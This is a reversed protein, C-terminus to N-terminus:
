TFDPMWMGDAERTLAKAPTTRGMAPIRGRLKIRIRMLRRRPSRIIAQGLGSTLRAYWEM